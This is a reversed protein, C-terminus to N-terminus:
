FDDLSSQFNVKENNKKNKLNNKRVSIGKKSLLNEDVEVNLQSLIKVAIKEGIISRLKQFGAKKVDGLNKIEKSYLLRARHKGIGKLKLLPILEEKAGYNLRLRLKFLDNVFRTKNLVKVLEILAYVLWCVLELKVRLEGPRINYKELLDEEDTENIWDYLLKAFKVSKLFHEFDYDFESPVDFLIDKEVDQILEFLEDVEKKYVSPLPRLELSKSILLLVAFVDFKEIQELGQVFDYATLPDLYLEAVRKGLHTASYSNERISLFNMEILEDVIGKIMFKIKDIDEFQYSWFTKSFFSILEGESKFFNSAILSLVFTRLIPEVALKSYIDEPMGNIYDNVAKDRESQSSVVIIAEGVTDYKPRGARGAQQMYEMIPIYVSRGRSYRKLDRIIVRYAPLDVGAALTPTAVIVKVYGERFSREILERQESLLGSHHFCVGYKIAEGLRLCQVTPRELFSVLENSLTKLKALDLNLSLKKKRELFRAIDLAVKEASRKANVFILVQKKKKLTDVILNIISDASYSNLKLNM